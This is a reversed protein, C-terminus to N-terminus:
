FIKNILNGIDEIVNGDGDADISQMVTGILDSNGSAAGLMQAIGNADLGGQEQSSKNVAGMVLPALIGILQSAAGNDMGTRQGIADAIANQTGGGLVQGLLATGMNAAGANGVFGAINDLISGDHQQTAQEIADAGGNNAQNGLASVLMPLAMGIASQTTGPNAGIQQSLQQLAPGALQGALMGILQNM